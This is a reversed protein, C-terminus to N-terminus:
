INSKNKYVYLYFYQIYIGNKLYLANNYQQAHNCEIIDYLVINWKTYMINEVLFTYFSFTNM